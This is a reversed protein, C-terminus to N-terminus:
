IGVGTGVNLGILRTGLGLGAGLRTAGSISPSYLDLIALTASATVAIIIIEDWALKKSVFYAAVGVAIGEILYKLVRILIEGFDLTEMKKRYEKKLNKRKKINL